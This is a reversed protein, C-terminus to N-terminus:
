PNFLTAEIESILAHVEEVRVRIDNPGRCLVESLTPEEVSKALLANGTEPSAPGNIRNLLGRAQNSLNEIGRIAQDLEIHKQARTEQAISNSM